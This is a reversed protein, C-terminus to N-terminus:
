IKWKRGIMVELFPYSNFVGHNIGYSKGGIM